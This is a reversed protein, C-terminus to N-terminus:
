ADLQELVDGGLKGRWLGEIGLVLLRPFQQGFEFRVEAGLLTEFGPVSRDIEIVRDDRCCALASLAVSPFDEADAEKDVLMLDFDNVVLIRQSRSQGLCEVALKYVHHLHAYKHRKKVGLGRLGVAYGLVGSVLLLFHGM